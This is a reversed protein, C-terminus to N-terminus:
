SILTDHKNLKYTDLFEAKFWKEVRVFDFACSISFLFRQVYIKTWPKTIVCAWVLQM